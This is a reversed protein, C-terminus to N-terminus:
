IYLLASRVTGGHIPNNKIICGLDKINLCANQKPLTTLTVNKKVAIVIIKIFISFISMELLYHSLTMMGFFEASLISYNAKGLDM